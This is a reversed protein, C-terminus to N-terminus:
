LLSSVKESYDIVNQLNAQGYDLLFQQQQIEEISLDELMDDILNYQNQIRAISILDFRDAIISSIGFNDKLAEAIQQIRGFPECGTFDVHLQCDEQSAINKLFGVITKEQQFYLNRISIERLGKHLNKSELFHFFSDSLSQADKIRITHLYKADKLIWEYQDMQLRHFVILEGQELVKKRIAQNVFYANQPITNQDIVNLVVNNQSLSEFKSTDIEFCYVNKLTEIQELYSLCKGLEGKIQTYEKLIMSGQNISFISEVLEFSTNELKIYKLKCKILKQRPFVECYDDNILIQLFINLIGSNEEIKNKIRKCTRKFVIMQQPELYKDIVDIVNSFYFLDKFMPPILYLYSM